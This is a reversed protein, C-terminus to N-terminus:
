SWCFEFHACKYCIKLINKPKPPISNNFLVLEMDSLIKEIKHEDDNDLVVNKSIKEKPIKIVGKADIGKKNKLLYLYYKLQFIGSKLTRSSKKIEAIYYFGDKKIVMDIMAEIDALYITKKERKYFTEEILKGIQLFENHQDATLQRSMLWAQRQCINFANFLSPPFYKM